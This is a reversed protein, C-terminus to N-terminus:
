DCCGCPEQAEPIDLLSRLADLRMWTPTGGCGYHLFYHTGEDCDPYALFMVKTTEDNDETCADVKVLGSPVKSGVLIGEGLLKRIERYDGYDGGEPIVRFGTLEMSQTSPIKKNVAIPLSALATHRVTESDPYYVQISPLTSLGRQLYLMGHKDAVVYYGAPIPEGLLYPKNVDPKNFEHLLTDVKLGLDDVIYVNGASDSKLFGAKNFRALKDSVRGLLIMSDTDMACKWFNDLTSCSLSQAHEFLDPCSSEQYIKVNVPQVCDDSTNNIHQISPYTNNQSM